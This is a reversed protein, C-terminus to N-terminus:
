HHHGHHEEKPRITNKPDPYAAKTPLQIDATPLTLLRVCALPLRRDEIASPTLQHDDLVCM